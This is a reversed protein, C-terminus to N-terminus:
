RPIEEMKYFELIDGEAIDGFKEVGVGCEYNTAVEKVDDKFRKLSGIVGDHLIVDNRIVRVNNKRSITGSTVYSGAILGLNPVKFVQRVEATATIVEKFEPDLMGKMADRIEELVVFIVTYTRIEVGERVSALKANADPKVNFAIVLANSVSALTVDTETVAGVGAHIVTVKINDENDNLKELAQTLAELSGQVDAKVILKVEKQESQSIHNFLEDLTVPAVAKAQLRRAKEIRDDVIKKASKDNEAVFFKEGAVPVTSLGIIEVATSPGAFKIRQGKDNTMARVKGYTTGAVITDSDTLNGSKILLSATIGRQKDVRAEIVTGIAKEDSNAKYDEIEALLLVNDLLEEIGINKKASIPVCITDGQWEEPILGHESLERKVKEINAEPKDIKNIAVIIPVKADKAHNIAEITQPKIGDDAAVVLIAIDTVAAGRSRMATFAEHGPTDIFTIPNDRMTITYAGIHQTIGGAEGSIVNAHRITDLLSTKGHDVHGMVTIIPPRSTLKDEDAYHKEVLTEYIDIEEEQEITISLEEAIISITDFDVVQNLSAMMGYGMLIKIIESAAVQFKEALDAITISAPVIVTGVVGSKEAKEDM